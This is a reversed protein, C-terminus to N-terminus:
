RWGSPMSSVSWFLFFSGSCGSVVGPRTRSLGAAMARMEEPINRGMTAFCNDRGFEDLDVSFRPSAPDSIICFSLEMQRFQTDALDLFFVPDRDQRQRRVEIRLLGLGPPAIFTVKREGDMGHFTDRDIGFMEFLRSPLLSSYIMELEATGLSNVDALCLPRGGAARLQENGPLKAM